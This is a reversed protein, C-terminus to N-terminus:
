QSKKNLKILDLLLKKYIWELTM